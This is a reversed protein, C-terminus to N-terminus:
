NINEYERAEIIYQNSYFETRQSVSLLQRHKPLSISKLFIFKRDSDFSYELVYELWSIINSLSRELSDHTAELLNSHIWIILFTQLATTQVRDSKRTEEQWKRKDAFSEQWRKKDSCTDAKM